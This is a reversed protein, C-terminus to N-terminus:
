HTQFLFTDEANAWRGEPSPERLDFIASLSGEIFLGVEGAPSSWTISVVASAPLKITSAATKGLVNRPKFCM